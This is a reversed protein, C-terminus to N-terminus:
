KKGGVREEGEFNPDVNKNNKIESNYEKKKKELVM